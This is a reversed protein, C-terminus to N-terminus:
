IAQEVIADTLYQQTSQSEKLRAKLQDCIVILTNAKEVIRYQKNLPYLPLTINIMRTLGLDKNGIGNTYTQSQIYCHPSNLALALYENLLKDNPIQLVALHVWVSFEVDLDNVKAIGTTGGKTYLVDGKKVKVRKCFEEHDEHSVYKASEMDINSSSINRTSLFPVGENKEVYQPSFHPGDAVTFCLDGLRVWEAGDELAFPRDLEVWDKMKKPKRIIKEKILSAKEEAIRELLKAAPEDSPDQPVLKGMVALQLITQKLQDISEETTFLTDFHESIRAWNQMLEDADASNTLTDLLTTVLVQHTEISAETQQELQDCLAMLEDVKAVIRKQQNFPPVIFLLQKLATANVNPQGTGASNEILQKWYLQSGLFVKTFPAYVAQVRKVRILYSAFVAQLDINEVLYSKGITGGTRAILIDDNELLYSKAKEDTIDCAPVTGWNVKDNQIDTIRLLRVGESNPKASATYGYHIDSSLNGLRTWEWGKPVNFPAEQETVEPLAKQKKIKKEKVLQTKEAAIRELLVSAPEDNPDQPVLKGRVALELILERLKKVGYLELKKSSGRGSTSRTKEASTWVDIHETILNEVAM